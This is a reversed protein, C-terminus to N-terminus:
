TQPPEDTAKKLAQELHAVREKLAELEQRSPIHLRTLISHAIEEIKKEWGRRIEEITEKAEQETMEGRKVLEDTFEKVKDATLFALGAGALLLRKALDPM